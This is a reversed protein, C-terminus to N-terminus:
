WRACRDIAIPQQNTALNIYKLINWLEIVHVDDVGCKKNKCWWVLCSVSYVYLIFFLCCRFFFELQTQPCNKPLHSTGLLLSSGAGIEHKMQWEGIRWWWWCWVWREFLLMIKSVDEDRHITINHQQNAAWTKSCHVLDLYSNIQFLNFVKCLIFICIFEERRESLRLESLKENMFNM